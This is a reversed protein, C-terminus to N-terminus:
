IYIYNVLIYFIVGLLLRYFFLTAGYRSLFDYQKVNIYAYIIVDLLIHLKFRM